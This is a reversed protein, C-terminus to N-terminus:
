DGFRSANLGRRLENPNTQSCDLVEPACSIVPSKKVQFLHDRVVHLHLPDDITHVEDAGIVM